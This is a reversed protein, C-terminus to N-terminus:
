DAGNIVGCALRDGADGTSTTDEDAGEPAYREPINAYNDPQSHVILASGNDDLLNEETLRDTFFQMSATGDEMVLLAPFDGAHEPHENDEPNLHSGASLFAGTEEPNDPDSSEPECLGSEHLHLGRFGPELDSLEVQINVAGDIETFEAVGIEMGDADQVEATAIPSAEAGSDDAETAAATDTDNTPSETGATDDTEDACASLTVLSLAGLAAATSKLWHRRPSIRNSM